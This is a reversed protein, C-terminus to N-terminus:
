SSESVQSELVQHGPFVVSKIKRMLLRIIVVAKDEMSKLSLVLKSKLVIRLKGSFFSNILVTTKCIICDDQVIHPTAEMSPNSHKM